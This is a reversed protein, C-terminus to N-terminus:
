SSLLPISKMDSECVPDGDVCCRSLMVISLTKAWFSAGFALITTQYIVARQSITDSLRSKVTLPAKALLTFFVSIKHEVTIQESEWVNEKHAMFMLNM